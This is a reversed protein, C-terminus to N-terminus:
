GGIRRRQSITVPVDMLYRQPQEWDRCCFVGTRTNVCPVVYRRSHQMARTLYDSTVAFRDLLDAVTMVGGNARIAPLVTEIIWSRYGRALQNKQKINAADIRNCGYDNAVQMTNIIGDNRDNM